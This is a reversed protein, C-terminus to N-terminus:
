SPRDPNSWRLDDAFCVMELDGVVSDSSLDESASTALQGM